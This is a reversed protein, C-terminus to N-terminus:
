LCFVFEFNTESKVLESYEQNTSKEPQQLSSIPALRQLFIRENLRHLLSRLGRARTLLM